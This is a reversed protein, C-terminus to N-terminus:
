ETGRHDCDNAFCDLLEVANTVVSAAPIELALTNSKVPNYPFRYVSRHRVSEVDVMDVVVRGIVCRIVKRQNFRAGMNRMVGCIRLVHRTDRLLEFLRSVCGSSPMATVGSLSPVRLM